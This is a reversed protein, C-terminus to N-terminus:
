VGRIGFRECICAAVVVPWLLAWVAATPVDLWWAGIGTKRIARLKIVFYVVYGLWYLLKIWDWEEM